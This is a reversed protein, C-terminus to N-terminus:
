IYLKSKYSKTRDTIPKNTEDGSINNIMNHILIHNM